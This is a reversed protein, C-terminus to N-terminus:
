LGLKLHVWYTDKQTIKLNHREPYLLALRKQINQLGIGSKALSAEGKEKPFSNEVGFDIEQDKVWLNIRIWSEDIQNSVGHKFANEIFGILLLPAIQKGRLDGGCEFSVQLRAGYRIKELQIYNKLQEIEKELDIKPINCEYLMYSMLNSLHLVVEAAKPHQSLIMGYLNNLTNFLFHPHLQHKLLELEAQLKQQTVQQKQQEQQLFFQYMKFVVPFASIYVVDLIRYVVASRWFFQNSHGQLDLLWWYYHVWVLMGSTVSGALAWFIFTLYHQRILYHPVLVYMLLYIFPLRTLMFILEAGLWMGFNLKPAHATSLMAYFLVWAVWYALHRQLREWNWTTYTQGLNKM